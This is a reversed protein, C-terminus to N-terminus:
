KNIVDKHMPAFKSLLYNQSRNPINNKDMAKQLVEVLGYFHSTNIDHGKHARKMNQGTYTCPGNLESCIQEALKKKFREDDTSKFFPAMKKDAKLMPLLDDVLKKIGEQKGFATFHKSEDAAVTFSFILSLFTALLIKTLNKM